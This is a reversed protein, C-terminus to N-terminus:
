FKSVVDLIIVNLGNGRPLEIVGNLGLVSQDSTPLTKMYRQSHLSLLAPLSGIIWLTAYQMIM